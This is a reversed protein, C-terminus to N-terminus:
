NEQKNVFLNTIFTFMEEIINQKEINVPLTSM